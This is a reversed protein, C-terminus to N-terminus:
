VVLAMAASATTISAKNAYFIGSESRFASFCRYIYGCQLRFSEQNAALLLVFWFLPGAKVHFIPPLNPHHLQYHCM